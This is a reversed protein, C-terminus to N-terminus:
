FVGLVLERFQDAGKQALNTISREVKGKNQTANVEIGRYRDESGGYLTREFNETLPFQTDLFVKPHKFNANQALESKLFEIDEPLPNKVLIIRIGLNVETTAPVIFDPRNGTSTSGGEIAKVTKNDIPRLTAVLKKPGTVTGLLIADCSTDSGAVVKLGRYESLLRVIAQTFPASVQPLVTQNEFVPVSITKIDYWQFPNEKDM